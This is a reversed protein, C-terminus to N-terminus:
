RLGGWEEPPIPEPTVVQGNSLEAAAGRLKRRKEARFSFRRGARDVVTVEKGAEARRKYLSFRRIFTRALVTM